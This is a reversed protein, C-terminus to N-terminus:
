EYGLRDKRGGIFKEVDFGKPANSATSACTIEFNHQTCNPCCSTFPSMVSGCKPCIWGYMGGYSVSPKSENDVTVHETANSLLQQVDVPSGIVLKENYGCKSCSKITGNASMSMTDGCIPCGKFSVASTFNTANEM